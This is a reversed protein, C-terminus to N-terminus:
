SPLDCIHVEDNTTDKAKAAFSNLFLRPSGREPQESNPITILYTMVRGLRRADRTAM